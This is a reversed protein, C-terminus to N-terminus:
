AEQGPPPSRWAWGRECQLEAFARQLCTCRLCVLEYWLRRCGEKAHCTKNALGLDHVHGQVAQTDRGFFAKEDPLAGAVTVKIKGM